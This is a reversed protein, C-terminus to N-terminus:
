QRITLLEMAAAAQCALSRVIREELLSYPQTLEHVNEPTIVADPSRKRNILQIVGLTEQKSNQMPLVLMSRARYSTDMDFSHDLKYPVDPPLDYVDPWNLSQGTSAVYGALSNSSIPIAFSRLSLTPKSSNQSVEFLLKLIGDSQDVLYISGADSWTIERSTSLILNLLDNVTSCRFMATGVSILSEILAIQEAETQVQVLHPTTSM